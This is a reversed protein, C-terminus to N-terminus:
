LAGTGLLRESEIFQNGDIWRLFARRVGQPELAADISARFGHDSFAEAVLALLLLNRENAGDDPVLIVFLESVRKGDLAAFDLPASMRVYATVPESIGAVRSHPIALGNGVGTSAALERRCLARYATQAIIGRSEEIMASVARLAEWKTPVDVDVAIVQPCLWRTMADM